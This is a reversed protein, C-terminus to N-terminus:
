RRRGLFFFSRFDFLAVLCCVDWFAAIVAIGTLGSNFYFFSLEVTFHGFGSSVIEAGQLRNM